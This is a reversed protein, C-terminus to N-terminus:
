PEARFGIDDQFGFSRTQVSDGVDASSLRVLWSVTETEAETLGSGRVFTKLAVEAGLISHDGGRGKAIDHLLLTCRLLV